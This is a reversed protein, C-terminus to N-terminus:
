PYQPLDGEVESFQPLGPQSAWSVGPGEIRMAVGLRDSVQRAALTDPPSGIDELVYRAYNVATTQVSARERQWDFLWFTLMFYVSVAAFAGVFVLLIKLFLAGKVKGLLDVM